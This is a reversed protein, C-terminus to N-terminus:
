SPRIPAIGAALLAEVLPMAAREPLRVLLHGVNARLVNSRRLAALDPHKELFLRVGLAVLDARHRLKPDRGWGELKKVVAQSPFAAHLLASPDLEVLPVALANSALAALIRERADGPLEATLAELAALRLDGKAALLQVEPGRVIAEVRATIEALVDTRGARALARVEEVLTPERDADRLLARPDVPLAIREWRDRTALFRELWQGPLYGGFLDRLLDESRLEEPELAQLLRSAYTWTRPPIADFAQEHARVLEVIAPHVGSGEAWALWTPRHAGVRLELFRARLARDLPNVQYEGDDPNVAAVCSWGPPLTYTHLTRASLLQLAPQQIAREARNLEELLLIGAGETPLIAPRAFRTTDGDFRPLGVLDPPELLSLDLVVLAVGLDRAAAAVIESKGIGTPGELLVPLRARHAARLAAVLRPGAPIREEPALLPLPAPAQRPRAAM